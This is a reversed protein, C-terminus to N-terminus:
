FIFQAKFFLLAKFATAILVIVFSAVAMVFKILDTSESKKFQIERIRREFPLTITVPIPFLAM